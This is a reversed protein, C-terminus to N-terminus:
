RIHLYVFNDRQRNGAPRDWRYDADLRVLNEAPRM